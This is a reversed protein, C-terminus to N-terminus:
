SGTSGRRRSAPHPSTGRARTPTPPAGRRRSAPAEPGTRPVAHEGEPGVRQRADVCVHELDVAGGPHSSIRGDGAEPEVVPFTGELDRTGCGDERERGLGGDHDRRRRGSRPASRGERRRKGDPRDVAPNEAALREREDVRPGVRRLRELREFGTERREAEPDLVDLQEHERVLVGVVDPEGRRDAAAGAARHGPVLQEDAVHGVHLGRHDGLLGPLLAEEAQVPRLGAAALLEERDHSIAAAVAPLPRRDVPRECVAVDHLRAPPPEPGLEAGPVAGRVRDEAVLRVATAITPSWRMAWM